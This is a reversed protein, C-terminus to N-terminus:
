LLVLFLNMDGGAEFFSEIVVELFEETAALGDIDPEEYLYSFVILIDRLQVIGVAHFVIREKLVIRHEHLFVVVKNRELGVSFNNVGDTTKVAFPFYRGLVALAVVGIVGLIYTQNRAVWQETKSAGTDLSSFVEATTSDQIQQEAGEVKNKPKYGRKKYTAM